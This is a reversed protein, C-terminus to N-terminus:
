VGIQKECWRDIAERAEHPRETLLWHDANITQVECDPLNALIDRNTQVHSTSAGASLLVLVPVHVTTLDPLPRTVEYLDQLYNGLPMFKLDAFPNMYLDAIGKDPNATLYARTQEDLEHLDRPPYRRQRLGLRYFFRLVGAALRILGRLRAVKALVGTLAQPFIPDILVLGLLEQPQRSAYDLGIQAGLSHGIIIVPRRRPRRLAALDDCWDERTYARFTMSGGHGRLDPALLESHACLRSHAMFERWRTSNSALGHLCIVSTQPAPASCYLYALRCGAHHYADMLLSRDGTEGTSDPPNATMLTVHIRNLIRSDFIYRAM